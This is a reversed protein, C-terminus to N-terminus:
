LIALRRVFFFGSAPPLDYRAYMTAASAIRTASATLNAGVPTGSPAPTEEDADASFSAGGASNFISPDLIGDM